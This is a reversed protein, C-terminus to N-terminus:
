LTHQFYRNNLLDRHYFKFKDNRKTSSVRSLESSEDDLFDFFHENLFSYLLSLVITGAKPSLSSKVFALRWDKSEDKIRPKFFSFNRWPPFWLLFLEIYQRKADDVQLLPALLWLGPQVVKQKTEVLYSNVNFSQDVFKIIVFKGWEITFTSIQCVNAVDQFKKTIKVRCNKTPLFILMFQHFINLSIKWLHFKVTQRQATFSNLFPLFFIVKVCKSKLQMEEMVKSALLMPLM